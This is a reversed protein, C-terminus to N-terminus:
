LKLKYNQFYQCRYAELEESSRSNNSNDMYLLDDKYLSHYLFTFVLISISFM